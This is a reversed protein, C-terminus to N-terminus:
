EGIYKVSDDIGATYITDGKVVLGSVHNGHGKGAIRDNDGTYYM